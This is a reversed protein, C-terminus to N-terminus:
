AGGAPVRIAVPDEILAIQMLQAEDLAGSGQFKWDFLDVLKKIKPAVLLPWAALNARQCLVMLLRDYGAHFCMSINDVHQATKDLCTFAAVAGVAWEEIFEASLVCASGSGPSNSSFCCEKGPAVDAQSATSPEMWRCM